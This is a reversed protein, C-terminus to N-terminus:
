YFKYIRWRQSRLRQGRLCKKWKALDREREREPESQPLGLCVGHHEVEFGSGLDAVVCNEHTEVLVLVLLKDLVTEGFVNPLLRRRRKRLNEM